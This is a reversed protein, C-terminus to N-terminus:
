RYSVESVNRQRELQRLYNRLDSEDEFELSYTETNGNNYVIEIEVNM